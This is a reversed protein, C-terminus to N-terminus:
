FYFTEMSRNSIIERKIENVFKSYKMSDKKSSAGKETRCKGINNWKIGRM